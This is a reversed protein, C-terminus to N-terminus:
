HSHDAHSCGDDIYIKYVVKNPLPYVPKFFTPNNLILDKILLMSDNIFLVNEFNDKVFIKINNNQLQEKINRM